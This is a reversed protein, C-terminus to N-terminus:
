PRTMRAGVIFRAGNPYNGFLYVYGGDPIAVGSTETQKRAAEVGRSVMDPVNGEPDGHAVLQAYQNNGIPLSAIRCSPESEHKLNVNGTTIFVTLVTLKGAPAAEIHLVNTWTKTKRQEPKVALESTPFILLFAPVVGPGIEPPKNWVKMARNGDHFPIGRALAQETFGMRWRGSTHLSVKAEKFSDRCAIYVDGNNTAWFRWSNSTLGDTDGVAFRVPGKTFPLLGAKTAAAHFITPYPSHEDTLTTLPHYRQLGHRLAPSAIM